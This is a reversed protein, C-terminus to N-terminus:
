CINCSSANAISNIQDDHEAIHSELVAIRESDNMLIWDRLVIDAYTKRLFCKEYKMMNEKNPFVLHFGRLREQEDVFDRIIEIDMFTPDDWPRIIEKEVNERRKKSVSKKEFDYIKNAADCGIEPDCDIIRAMNYTDLLVETKMWKDLASDTGTMGPSVNIEVVTPNLDEDLLMDIGLLEFCQHRNNVHNKHSDRVKDMGAITAKIAAYEMDKKIKESDYGNEQLWKFFFPLSWKSDEPKEEIGKPRVFFESNKNVEWNTIHMRPENVGKSKDFPVTCFLGLGHRHIYITMPEVSTVLTYFRIDFKRGMILFPRDLYKQVLYPYPPYTQESSDRVEINQGKSSARPKLIWYQSTSWANIIKDFDDPLIYTQQYFLTESYGMRETLEQIRQHFEDKRGILDVSHFHSLKQWPKVAEFDEDPLIKGIFINVNTTNVVPKMGVKKLCDVHLDTSTFYPFFRQMKNSVRDSDEPKPTEIYSFPLQHQKFLFNIKEM